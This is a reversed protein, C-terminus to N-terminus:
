AKEVAKEYPEGKRKKALLAYAGPIVVAFILFTIIVIWQNSTKLFNPFTLSIGYAGGIILGGSIALAWLIKLKPFIGQLAVCAAILVFATKLFLAIIWISTHLADMRQFIGVGSVQSMVYIPFSQTKAFDGLVAITVFYLAFVLAVIGSCWLVINKKQIPKIIKPMLFPIVSIEASNCAMRLADRLNDTIKNEIFPAFNTIQFRKLAFFMIFGFSIFLLWLVIVSVRGLSQIGLYAGYCAAGVLLCILMISSAEENMESTVFYVFRNINLAGNFIFWLFYFGCIGKGIPKNIECSVASLPRNNYAKMYFYVPLFFVLLMPLMFLVSLLMDGKVQQYNLSPIYTLSVLIRSVFLLSFLQFISISELKNSKILTPM